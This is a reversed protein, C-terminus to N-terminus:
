SFIESFNKDLFEAMKIAHFSWTQGQVKPYYVFGGNASDLIMKFKEKFLINEKIWYQKKSIHVELDKMNWYVGVLSQKRMNELEIRKILISDPPLPIELSVNLKQSIKDTNSVM